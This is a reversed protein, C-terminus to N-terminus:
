SLAFSVLRGLTLHKGGSVAPLPQFGRSSHLFSMPDLWLLGILTEAVIRSGIPGLHQGGMCAAERSPETAGYYEAERLIYVGSM